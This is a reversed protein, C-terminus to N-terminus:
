QKAKSGLSWQLVLAILARVPKDSLQAPRASWRSKAIALSAADLDPFGSSQLLNVAVIKGTEDVVLGITVIGEEGHARADAPYDAAAMPMLTLPSDPAIDEPGFDLRWSVAAKWRCAVPLGARMAPKYLWRAKATAIAADDLRAVGSTRGVSADAVKGQTDITLDLIVTGQEGEAKSLLPYDDATMAHSNLPTPVTM